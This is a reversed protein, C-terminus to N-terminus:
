DKNVSRGDPSPWEEASMWEITVVASDDSARSRAADIALQNSEMVLTPWPSSWDLEWSEGDIRTWSDRWPRWRQYHLVVQEADRLASLAEMLSTDPVPRTLREDKIISAALGKPIIMNRAGLETLAHRIAVPETSDPPTGRGRSETLLTTLQPVAEQAGLGGLTRAGWERVTDHESALLNRLVPIAATARLAEVIEIACLQGLRGLKEARGLLPDLVVDGASILEAQAKRPEGKFPNTWSM